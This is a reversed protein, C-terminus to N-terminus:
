YIHEVEYGEEEILSVISPEEVMHMAGVIVFYTDGSDDKLIDLISDAMDINRETNMAEMYEDYNEFTEAEAETTSSLADIDGNQWYGVLEDLEDTAEDFNLIISELMDIQLEDSFGALMELQDEFTELERVEKGDEEARDLFYLDVGYEASYDSEELTLETVLTEMFWPKFNGVFEIPMNHEELISELELYADESLDEQISRGDQYTAFEMIMPALAAEDMNNIDIEPLVVDSEDYADEIKENLPYFEENGIHITGQLYVTTEGNKAKWLFGGDQADEEPGCAVLLTIVMLMLFVIKRM